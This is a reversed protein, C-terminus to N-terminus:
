QRAGLRGIGLACKPRREGFERGFRAVQDMALGRSGGRAHATRLRSRDVDRRTSGGLGDILEGNGANGALRERGEFALESQEGGAAPREANRARPQHEELSSRICRGICRM